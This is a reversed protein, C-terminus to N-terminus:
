MNIKSFFHVFFRKRWNVVALEDFNSIQKPGNGLFSGGGTATNNNDERRGLWSQFFATDKEPPTPHPHSNFAGIEPENQKCYKSVITRASFLLFKVSHRYFSGAM